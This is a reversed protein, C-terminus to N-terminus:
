AASSKGEDAEMQIFREIERRALREAAEQSPAEGSCLRHDQPRVKYLNYRWATRVRTAPNFVEEIEYAFNNNEYIRMNKRVNM